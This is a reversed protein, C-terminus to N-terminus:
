TAGIAVCGVEGVVATPLVRSSALATRSRLQTQGVQWGAECRRGTTVDQGQLLRLLRPGALRTTVARVLRRLPSPAPVHRCGTREVWRAGSADAKEAMM